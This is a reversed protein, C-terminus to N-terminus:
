SKNREKGKDSQKQMLQICANFSDLTNGSHMQNELEENEKMEQAYIESQKKIKETDAETQALKEELEKKEKKQYNAYMGLIILGAVVAGIGFLYLIGSM